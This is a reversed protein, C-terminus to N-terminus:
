FLKNFFFTSFSPFSGFPRQRHGPAPGAQNTGNTRTCQSKFDFFILLIWLCYTERSALAIAISVTCTSAWAASYSSTHTSTPTSSSTINISIASPRPVTLRISPGRADIDNSTPARPMERRCCARRCCALVQHSRCYWRQYSLTQRKVSRKLSLKPSSM